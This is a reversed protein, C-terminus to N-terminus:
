IPIRRTQGLEVKTDFLQCFYLKNYRVSDGGNSKYFAATENGIILWKILYQNTSKIHSQM